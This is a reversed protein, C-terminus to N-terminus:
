HARRWRTRMQMEVANNKLDDNPEGVSAVVPELPQADCRAKQLENMTQARFSEGRLPARIVVIGAESPSVVINQDDGEATKETASEESLRDRRILLVRAELKKADAGTVVYFNEGPRSSISLSWPGEPLPSRIAVNQVSLDYLCYASIVDPSSFPLGTARKGDAIVLTNPKMTASLRSWADREALWPIGLVCLIHIIGGAVVGGVIWPISGMVLV